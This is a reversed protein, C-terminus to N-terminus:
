LVETLSNNHDQVYSPNRATALMIQQPYSKFQSAEAAQHNM